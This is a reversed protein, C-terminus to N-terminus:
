MYAIRCFQLLSVILRFLNEPLSWSFSTGEIVVTLVHFLLLAFSVVGMSRHINRYTSLSVGLMDALFSLHPGIFLPSM